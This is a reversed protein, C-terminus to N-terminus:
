GGAALHELLDVHDTLLARLLTWREAVTPAALLRQRDAPGLPAAITAQYAAVTPEDSLDLDLPPGPQGLEEALAATRHLLAVVTALTAPDLGDLDGAEDPWVRTEAQPYPDDPLWRDVRLRHTGVAVVAWRGDPLEEHQVMRALTGVDTRVDGGGVESGREILVVGFTQDGALCDHVLTRYRPEFVHLPLLMGPVLVTGLPFM